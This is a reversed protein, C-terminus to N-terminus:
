EFITELRGIFLNHERIDSPESIHNEHVFKIYNIEPTIRVQGSRKVVSIGISSIPERCLSESSSSYDASILDINLTTLM